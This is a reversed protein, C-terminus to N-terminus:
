RVGVLHGRAAADRIVAIGAGERHFAQALPEGDPVGAPLDQKRAGVRLGQPRPTEDQHVM